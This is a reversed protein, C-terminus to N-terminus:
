AGATCAQLFKETATPWTRTQTAALGAAALRRALAPNTLLQRAADAIAHAQTGDVLLGTQNNQVAEPTGGANGGIVPVGCAMAELFVLPMGDAEAGEARNPLAMVQALAYHAPMAQPPVHGAFRVPLGRAATELAARQPGEGVVLLAADPVEALVAPWAEILRDIGKRPVLRAPAIIVRLGELGLAARLAPDPPTPRFEGLDVGNRITVIRAPDVGYPAALRAAAHDGAAIVAHAQRFWRARARIHRPDDSALDDGHCYILARRRLVHRAFPVLWGVTEDDCVCIAAPNHARAEAIVAAALRAMGPLGWRLGARDDRGDAPAGIARAAGRLPPRVLPIRRVPHPLAADLAQWGPHEIGTRHDHSATLVAIRGAAHRALAAYVGASGGLVPPFTQAVLLCDAPVAPHIRAPRARPM